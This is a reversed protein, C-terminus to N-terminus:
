PRERKPDQKGKPQSGTTTRDDERQELKMGCKSCACARDSKIDPHMPCVYNTM